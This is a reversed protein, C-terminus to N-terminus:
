IDDEIGEEVVSHSVVKWGRLDDRDCFGGGIWDETVGLVEDASYYDGEYYVEITLTLTKKSDTM